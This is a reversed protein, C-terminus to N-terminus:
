MLVIHQPVVCLNEPVSFRSDRNNGWVVLKGASTLAVTLDRGCCVGVAPEMNVPTDCQGRANAGWCVIKGYATLAADM